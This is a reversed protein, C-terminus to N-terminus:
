FLIKRARKRESHDSFIVFISGHMNLSDKPGKLMIVAWLDESLASKLCKFLGVKEM